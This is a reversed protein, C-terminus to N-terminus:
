SLNKIVALKKASTAASKVRNYDPAIQEVSGTEVANSTQENDLTDSPDLEKTNDSDNDSDNDSENHPESM